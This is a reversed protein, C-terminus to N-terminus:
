KASIKTISRDSRYNVLWMSRNVFGGGPAASKFRLDSQLYDGKVGQAEFQKGLTAFGGIFYRACDYGLPAMAPSMDLLDSKFWKKYEGIFEKAALTGPYFFHSSLVFTNAAYFQEKYISVYDLWKQFGLVGCNTKTVLEKVRKAKVLITEMAAMDDTNPVFIAQKAGAAAVAMQEATSEASVERMSYGKNDLRARLQRVLVSMNGGPTNVFIMRADKSFANVVLDCALGTEYMVPTNLVYLGSRRTVEEVRSSFPVVVKTRKNALKSLEAFHSPYLPGVVLNTNTSAIRNAISSISADHSPENYVDIILNKGERKYEELALLFGRYFEVSRQCEVGDGKLPLVVAVRLSNYGRPPLPIRKEEKIPILITRGKKLKYDKERMKPNAAVLEDVTIDHAKSISWLTEGKKTKYKKYTITIIVSDVNQAVDALTVRSADNARASKHPIVLSVGAKLNAPTLGPNAAELQQVSVGYRKSIRFLTEGLAVSHTTAASPEQALLAATVNGFLFCFVLARLAQQFYLKM